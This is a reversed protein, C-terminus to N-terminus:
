LNEWVTRDKQKILSNAEDDGDFMETKPDWKLSRGLQYGINALMCLTNTRHGIEVDAVPKAGSTICDLWNRQHNNGIVRLREDNKGLPTELIGATDSEIKRRDVFLSGKTGIFHCGRREPDKPGHIMEVGNAYEFRLGQGTGPDEPTIVSVPGSGDMKMAWQAIDFHHAGIDALPGGAYERYDRWRPFHKHIGIPCLIENFGREPAPGLWMDWNIGAPLEEEPLDCPKPPGGVGIYIKKLQGIRGNRVYEVAQRFRGGFETRQQSGTQYTIGNERAAEVVARGEAITRTLPKECYIHKGAKAALISQIAHWHDPTGIVVADLGDMALLDRFDDFKEVDVVERSQKAYAQRVQDAGDEVRADVVDCVAVMRTDSYRSVSAVLQHMRKGMGILGVTIQSNPGSGKKMASWVASPLIFPASALAVNQFLRRRSFLHTKKNPKM